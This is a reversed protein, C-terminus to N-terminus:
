LKPARHCAVARSAIRHLDSTIGIGAGELCLGLIKEFAGDRTSVISVAGQAYEDLMDAVSSAFIDRMQRRPRGGTERRNAALYKQVLTATVQSSDYLISLFQDLRKMEPSKTANLLPPYPEKRGTTALALVRRTGWGLSQLAKQMESISKILRKLQERIQLRTSLTVEFAHWARYSEICSELGTVVQQTAKRSLRPMWRSLQQRDAEKFKFPRRNLADRQNWHIHLASRTPDYHM